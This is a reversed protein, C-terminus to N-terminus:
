VFSGRSISGYVEDTSVHLFRNHGAKRAAELLTFVGAVDTQIFEGPNLISRDVHSEAAFNLIVDADSAVKAAAEPDSINGHTFEFRADNAFDALNDLNGAYTLADLVHVKYTPHERLVLRVYNSGIFGAGGTVVLKM